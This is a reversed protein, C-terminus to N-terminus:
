RRADAPLSAAQGVCVLGHGVDTRAEGGTGGSVHVDAPHARGQKIPEPGPVRAANEDQSDVVGVPLAVNYFGTAINTSFAWSNISNKIFRVSGDCFGFNVGGPHYSAADTADGGIFAIVNASSTGVNPPFYTTVMTDFWHHSNWSGDSNQYSPDFRAFLAQAREGFLMTNSTGDTISAIRTRSDNYIVGNFNTLISPPM